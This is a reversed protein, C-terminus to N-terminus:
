LFKVHPLAGHQHAESMWRNRSAIPFVTYAYGLTRYSSEM